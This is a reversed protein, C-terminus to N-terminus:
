KVIFKYSEMCGDVTRLHCVYVGAPFGALSISCNDSLGQITDLHQGSVNYLVVESLINGAHIHLMKSVPDVFVLSSRIESNNLGSNADKVVEIDDILMIFKKESVCQIAVHVSQNKYEDLKVVVNEWQVPAQRPGGVMTFDDEETGTVSVWVNYDELGYKDTQSKVMFRLEPNEGLELKPSILWDNSAIEVDGNKAFFSAGFRKGNYGTFFDPFLPVTEDPNFAVFGFPKDNGPWYASFGFLGYGGTVGGDKDISQWTPNMRDTAFDACSEFDLKYPDTAAVSQVTKRITDNAHNMDAELVPYVTLEHTGLETLDVTFEVMFSTAYSPASVQTEATKVGDVLCHFTVNDLPKFGLNRYKVRVPEEKWMLNSNLPAEYAVAEVNFAEPEINSDFLPRIGLNIGSVTQLSDPNFFTENYEWKNRVQFCGDEVKETCLGLYKGIKQEVEFFYRGQKLLLPNVAYDNFANGPKQTMETSYLLRAINTDNVEYVNLKFPVISDAAAFALKVATLTDQAQIDFVHGVGYSWQKDGITQDFSTINDYALETGSVTFSWARRNNEPTIDEAAITAEIEMNVTKGNELGVYSLPLECVSTSQVPVTVPTSTYLVKGDQKVVLTVIEDEVGQNLLDVKVKTGMLQDAPVLRPFSVPSMSAITVDHLPVKSLEMGYLEVTKAEKTVMVAFSYCGPTTITIDKSWDVKSDNTYLDKVEAVTEWTHIDTDSRGMLISIDATINDPWGWSGAMWKFTLTYSAPQLDFCGSVLPEFEKTPKYANGNKKWTVEKSSIPWWFLDLGSAEAFVVSYPPEKSDVNRTTAWCTDNFTHLQDSTAAQMMVEFETNAASLDAKQSFYVTAEEGAEIKQTFTEKIENGGNISYSATFTEVAKTGVNTVTLGLSEEATLACGFQPLVGWLAAVETVPVYAGAEIRVEDVCIQSGGKPSKAHFSFCYLGEEPVDIDKFAFTWETEGIGNLEMVPTLATVAATSKGFLVDMSEIQDTSYGGKYYFTLNVKGKPLYIPKTTLYDDNGATNSGQCLVFGPKGAFGSAAYTRWEYMYGDNNNNLVVWKSNDDKIDENTPFSDYFPLELPAAAQTWLPLFVLITVFFLNIKKM